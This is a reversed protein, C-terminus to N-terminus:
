VRFTRHEQYDLCSPCVNKWDELGKMNGCDVSELEIEYFIESCVDCEAVPDFHGCEYCTDIQDEIVFSNLGCESCEWIFESNSYQYKKRIKELERKRKMDKYVNAHINELSLSLPREAHIIYIIQNTLNFTHEIYHIHPTFNDLIWDGKSKENTLFVANCKNKKVFELIEHYIIFDGYPYEKKGFDGAGPFITNNLNPNKNNKHIAILDDYLKEIDTIKSDDLKDVMQLSSCVNLLEDVIKVDKYDKTTIQVKEKLRGLVEDIKVVQNLNEQIKLLEEWEDVYDSELLKKHTDMFAKFKGKADKSAKELSSPITRLPMFLDSEIIKIRNKRFEEQVQRTLYLHNKNKQLFVLLKEKESAAMGYYSLLVNTDLFVAINEDLQIAKEFEKEYASLANASITLNLDMRIDFNM